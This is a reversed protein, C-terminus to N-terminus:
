KDYINGVYEDFFKKITFHIKSIFKNDIKFYFAKKTHIPFTCPPM